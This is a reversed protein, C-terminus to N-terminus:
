WGQRGEDVRRHDLPAPACVVVAARHSSPQARPLQGRPSSGFHASKVGNPLSTAAEVAPLAPHGSIDWLTCAFLFDQLEGQSDPRSQASPCVALELWIVAQVRLVRRPVEWEIFIWSYWALSSSAAAPALMGLCMTTEVGSSASRREVLEAAAASDHDLGLDVGAAAPLALEDAVGVLEAPHLEDRRLLLRSGDGLRHELVRELGLLGARFALLDALQDDLGVGLRGLLEVEAHDEVAGMPTGTRIALASPPMSMSSTAALCGSFIMLTGTEGPSRAQQRELGAPQGVFEAEGAVLHVLGLRDHVGERLHEQLLVRAEGLDVRQRDGLLAVHDDEVGLDVEVVVGQEPVLVDFRQAVQALLVRDLHPGAFAFRFKMWSSPLMPQRTFPAPSAIPVISMMLYWPPSGAFKRSTPPPTVGSAAMSANRMM